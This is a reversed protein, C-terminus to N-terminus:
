RQAQEKPISHLLSHKWHQEAVIYHSALQDLLTAPDLAPGKLFPDLELNCIQLQSQLQDIGTNLINSQSLKNRLLQWKSVKPESTSPVIEDPLQSFLQRYQRLERDYGM